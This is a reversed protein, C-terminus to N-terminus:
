RVQERIDIVVSPGILRELPIEDLRKQGKHFHAPADIHTGMHESTMLNNSEMRCGSIILNLASKWYLNSSNGIKWDEIKQLDVQRLYEKLLIYFRAMTM